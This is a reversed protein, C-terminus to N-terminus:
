LSTDHSVVSFDANPLTFIKVQHHVAAKANYLVQDAISMMVLSCLALLLVGSLAVLFQFRLSQSFHRRM